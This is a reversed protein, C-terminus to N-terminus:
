DLGTVRRIGRILPVVAKGRRRVLERIGRASFAFNPDSGVKITRMRNASSLDLDIGGPDTEADRTAGHGPDDGITVFETDLWLPVRTKPIPWRDPPVPSINVALINRLAELIFGGSFYKRPILEQTSSDYDERIFNMVGLDFASVYQRFVATAFDEDIMINPVLDPPAARALPSHQIKSKFWRALILAGFAQRTTAFHRGDNLEAELEPLLVEAFIDDAWDSIDKQIGTPLRDMGFKPSGAYAKRSLDDARLEAGLRAKAVLAVPGQEIVEALKPVIWVRSFLNVATDRGYAQALEHVAAWYREGSPRDPHISSANFQKLLYDQALLDRGLETRALDPSIIRDHEQPSLNVWISSEPISLGVLFYRILREAEARFSRSEPGADGVDIMFHLLFPNDPNLKIGLMSVPAFSYSRPIMTGPFPLYPLAEMRTLSLVEKAVQGISDPNSDLTEGYSPLRQLADLWDPLSGTTSLLVPVIRTGFGIRAQLMKPLEEDCIFSSALFNNSLLLIAVKADAIARDLEDRWPDGGRLRTDRRRFQVFLQQHVLERNQEPSATELGQFKGFFFKWGKSFKWGNSNGGVHQRITGIHAAGSQAEARGVPRDAGGAGVAQGGDPQTRGCVVLVGFAGVQKVVPKGIKDPADGARDKLATAAFRFDFARARHHVFSQRLIAFGYEVGDTFHFISQNRFFFEPLVEDHEVPVQFQAAVGVAFGHTAIAVAQDFVQRHENFEHTELGQFAVM